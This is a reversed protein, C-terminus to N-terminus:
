DAPSRRDKRRDFLLAPASGITLVVMVFLAQASPPVDGLRKAWALFLPWTGWSCAAMVVLAYGSIARSRADNM